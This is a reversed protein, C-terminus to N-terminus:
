EVIKKLPPGPPPAEWRELLERRREEKRWVIEEPPQQPLEWVHGDAGTVIQRGGKGKRCRWRKKNPGPEANETTAKRRRKEREEEEISNNIELSIKKKDSAQSIVRILGDRSRKTYEVQKVAVYIREPHDRKYREWMKRVVEGDEGIQAAKEVGWKICKEEFPKGKRASETVMWNWRAVISTRVKRKQKRAEKARRRIEACRVELKSEIARKASQFRMRRGLRKMRNMRVRDGIFTRTKLFEMKKRRANVRAERMRNIKTTHLKAIRVEIVERACEYRLARELRKIICMRIKDGVFKKAKAFEQARRKEGEM